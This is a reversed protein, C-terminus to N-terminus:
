GPPWAFSRGALLHYHVHGVLQGADKGCNSVLRFGKELGMEKAIRRAALHLRGMVAADSEELDCLAPVHKKPILLLHVPAVPNIDKFALLEGDEFVIEAEIEKGAIKCFICDPM